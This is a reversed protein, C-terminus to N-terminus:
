RREGSSEAHALWFSLHSPQLTADVVGVLDDTLSDLEVESRLRGSFEAITREADYRNRNFRKDVLSQIRRRLPGFAAVVSLTSGAVIVPSDDSLPLVSQLALVALLYAGILITSVLGYALTRSIIRDIDYLRYRLVAIGITIPILTVTLSFFANSIDIAADTEPVFSFVIMQVVVAGFVVLAAYAVWKMQQREANRSRRFRLVLSLVALVVSALILVGGVASLIEFFGELGEVGFPNNAPDISNYMPGPAFAYAVVECAIGAGTLWLVPVWRKGLPRGTPFLQIIFIVPAFTLTWIFSGVWDAVNGVAGESTPYAEIYASVLAATIGFTGVLSLIWGVSNNPRKAAVLAGLVACALVFAVFSIINLFDSPGEAFNAIYSGISLGIMNLAFLSWALFSSRRM